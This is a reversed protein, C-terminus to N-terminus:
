KYIKNAIYVVRYIISQWWRRVTIEAISENSLFRKEIEQNYRQQTYIIWAKRGRDGNRFARTEAEIRCTIFINKREGLGARCITVAKLWRASQSLNDYEINKLAKQETPNGVGSRGGGVNDDNEKYNVYAEKQEEYDTEIEKFHLLYREATKRDENFCEAIKQAEDTTILM